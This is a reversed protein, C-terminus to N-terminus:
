QATKKAHYASKKRSYTGSIGLHNDDAKVINEFGICELHESYFIHDLPVKFISSTSVFPYPMFGRRSEILGSTELFSKIEVSWSVSNFDGLVITPTEASSVHEGVISLHSKLRELSFENLAPETQVSVFCFPEDQKQICGTLNPIEKFYFTDINELPHRSYIAMGFIGIDVMTHHHPYIGSLSDELLGAWSPTVEHLTVLDAGSAALAERIQSLSDTNTMNLHVVKFQVDEEIEPVPSRPQIKTPTKKFRPIGGSKVSYKLFICLFACGAFFAFTLRPQRLFLMVLGAVLYLLMLHVAYNVGWSLSPLANPFICVLVGLLVVAIASFHVIPHSLVKEIM